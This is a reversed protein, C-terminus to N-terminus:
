RNRRNPPGQQVSYRRKGELEFNSIGHNKMERFEATSRKNQVEKIETLLNGGRKRSRKINFFPKIIRARKQKTVSRMDSGTTQLYQYLREKGTGTGRTQPRSRM